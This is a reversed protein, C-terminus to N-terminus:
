LAKTWVQLTKPTEATDGIDTWSFQATTATQPAYGRARWFPDLPRYDAPKAPHDARRIVACFASHSAGLPRAHAERLDFFRHGIGQSRYAPLLVSEACYFTDPPLAASIQAADAHHELPMGTAAGVIDNGDLAAVLVAGPTDRYSRLYHSEYDADGQYLYPFAAFVEVRLRALDPLARTLADGTLAKVALSM